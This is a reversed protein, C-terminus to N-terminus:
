FSFEFDYDDTLTYYEFTQTTSDVSYAMSIDDGQFM